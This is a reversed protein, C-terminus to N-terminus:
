TIGSKWPWMSNLCGGVFNRWVMIGESESGREEGSFTNKEEGELGLKIQRDYDNLRSSQM